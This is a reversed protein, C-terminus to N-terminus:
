NAAHTKKHLSQTAAMRSSTRLGEAQAIPDHRCARALDAELQAQRSHVWPAYHKETIKVSSHGLLISVREIPLMTWCCNSQSRTVSVTHTDMVCAPSSVYVDSPEGLKWCAHRAFRSWDLVLLVRFDLLRRTFRM